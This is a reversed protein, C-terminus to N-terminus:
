APDAEPLQKRIASVLDSFYDNSINQGILAPLDNFYIRHKSGDSSTWEKGIKKLQEIQQSNM